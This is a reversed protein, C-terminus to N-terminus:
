STRSNSKLFWQIRVNEDHNDQRLQYKFYSKKLFWQVSVNEDRNDQRLPYTFIIKWLGSFASMRATTTRGWLTRLNSKELVMSCQCGRRPQGAKSLVYIRNELFWQVSVNGRPQGAKTPIYIGNKVLWQVSVNESHNDRRLKYTFEIKWFDSSASMRAM